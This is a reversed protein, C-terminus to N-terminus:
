IEPDSTVADMVTPLEPLTVGTRTGRLCARLFPTPFRFTARGSCTRRRRTSSRSRPVRGENARRHTIRTVVNRTTRRRTRASTSATVNESRLARSLRVKPRRRRQRRNSRSNGNSTHDNKRCRSIALRKIARNSAQTRSMM